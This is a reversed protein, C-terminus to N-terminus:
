RANAADNTIDKIASFIRENMIFIHRPYRSMICEKIEDETFGQGLFNNNEADFALLLDDHSSVKELKIVRIHEAITERATEMAQKHNAYHVLWNAISYIAFIVLFVNILTEM